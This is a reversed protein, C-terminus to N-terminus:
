KNIKITLNSIKVPTYNPLGFGSSGKSMTINMRFVGEDLKYPAFKFSFPTTSMPGFVTLLTDKANSDLKVPCGYGGFLTPSFDFKMPLGEETATSAEIVFKYNNYSTFTHSITVPETQPNDFIYMCTYIIPSDKYPFYDLAYESSRAKEQFTTSSINLERYFYYKFLNDVLFKQLNSMYIPDENSLKIEKTVASGLIVGPNALLFKINNQFNVLEQQDTGKYAVEAKLAIMGKSTKGFEAFRSGTETYGSYIDGKFETYDREGIIKNNATGTYSTLSTSYEKGDTLQMANAIGCVIFSYMFTTVISKIKM